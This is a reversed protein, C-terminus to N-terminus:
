LRRAEELLVDYDQGSVRSVRVVAAFDFPPGPMSLQKILHEDVLLRAAASTGLGSLGLVLTATLGSSDRNFPNNTKIVLGYTEDIDRGDASYQLEYLRGFLKMTPPDGTTELTVKPALKALAKKTLENANPGGLLLIDKGTVEGKGVLDGSSEIVTYKIRLQSLTPILAILADVERFSARTGSTQGDGARTTIAITLDNV